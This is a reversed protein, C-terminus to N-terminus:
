FPIPDPTEFTFEAPLEVTSLTPIVATIQVLRPVWRPVKQGRPKLKRWGIVLILWHADLLNQAAEGCEASIKTVRAAVNSGSTTQVAVTRQGVIGLVDVFGFLDQRIKAFSNWHETIKALRFGPQERLWKLTRQTPSRSGDLTRRTPSTKAM